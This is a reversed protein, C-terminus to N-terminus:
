NDSHRIQCLWGTEPFSLTKTRNSNTRNTVPLTVLKGTCPPVRAPPQATQAPRQAPVTFLHDNTWSRVGVTCKSKLRRKTKFHKENKKERSNHLVVVLSELRGEGGCWINM